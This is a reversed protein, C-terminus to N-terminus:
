SLIIFQYTPTGSIALAQIIRLGLLAAYSKSLAIALNAVFYTSLMILYVPRRGVMDATDGVLSPAITAVALYTTITLDIKGVSVKLNRALSPIAPFYIFSSLTSLWAAYAAMAVIMWKQATTFVSHKQLANVSAAKACGETEEDPM